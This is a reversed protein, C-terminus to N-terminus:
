TKRTHLELHLQATFKARRMAQFNRSVNFFIRSYHFVYSVMRKEDVHVCAFTKIVSTHTSSGPISYGCGCAVGQVGSSKFRLSFVTGFRISHADSESRLALMFSGKTVMGPLSFRQFSSLLHLGAMVPCLFIQFCGSIGFFYSGFSQFHDLVAMFWCLESLLQGSFWWIALEVKAWVYLQGFAM